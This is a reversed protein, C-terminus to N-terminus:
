EQQRLVSKLEKIISLLEQFTKADSLRIERETLDDALHEMSIYYGIFKWNIKNSKKACVPLKNKDTKRYLAFNLEDEATIKYDSNLKIELM